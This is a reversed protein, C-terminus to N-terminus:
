GRSPSSSPCPGMSPIVQCPLISATSQSRPLDRLIPRGARHLPSLVPTKAPLFTISLCNKPWSSPLLQGGNLLRRVAGVWFSGSAEWSSLFVQWGLVRWGRSKGNSRM